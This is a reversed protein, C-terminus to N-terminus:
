ICCGNVDGENPICCAASYDDSSQSKSLPICCASLEGESDTKTDEGFVPINDLTHFSEWAIGQPDLAWHKNSHAYCCSAGEQQSSTIEAEDLRQAIESLEDESDVQIGLHNVGAPHGRKSIAFNVAPDSIEWKAYDDREVSPLNGFITSYFGISELLENVAIHIHMRKM